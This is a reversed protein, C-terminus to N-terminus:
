NELDMHFMMQFIVKMFEGEKMYMNEKGMNVIMEGIGRM